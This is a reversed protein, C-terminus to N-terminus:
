SSGLHKDITDVTRKANPRNAWGNILHKIQERYKSLRGVVVKKHDPAFNHMWKTLFDNLQNFWQFPQESSSSRAGTLQRVLLEIVEILDKFAAEPSIIEYIGVELICAILQNETQFPVYTSGRNRAYGRSEILHRRAKPFNHRARELMGYQLWFLDHEHLAPLRSVRDYIDAVRDFNGDRSLSKLYNFRMLERAVHFLDGSISPGHVLSVLANEIVRALDEKDLITEIAFKSFISSSYFTGSRDSLLFSRVLDSVDTREALKGIERGFSDRLMVEDLHADIFELYICLVVGDYVERSLEKLLALEAKYRGILDQSNMLGILLDAFNSRFKAAVLNGKLANFLSSHEGWLSAQSVLPV